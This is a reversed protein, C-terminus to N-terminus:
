IRVANREEVIRIVYELTDEADMSTCDVIIADDAPHLPSASRSTDLRDREKMSALVEDYHANASHQQLEHYRRRAREEVSADLYIKLDANPIVVTGIDRGVMVVQGRAAVRRQQAVMARRVRQYASIVSVNADVDAKRIAWTVDEGDLRVTYQRGDNKDPPAVHIDIGEALQSMAEEDGPSVGRRLAALTVARYMVGTDFYLFGIHKALGSGVTSKGSGAPGDIAITQIPHTFRGTMHAQVERETLRRWDGSKLGGLTVSGVRVRVLRIVPHGLQKAIRRIQRKRGEHMVISLLTAGSERQPLSTSPSPTSLTVVLCPATKKMEGDLLVGERWRKLTAESPKGEVLVHYEKEHEFRPHTLRYAFAGDNTLLILGSSDKDLRGVGFLRQPLDVLDFITKARLNSRDSSYGAPKHLAIYVKEEPLTARKGDVRVEDDPQVTAGLHAIRGNITVRGDAILQECKRRAGFGSQALLKQLRM